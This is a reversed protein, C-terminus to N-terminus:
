CRYWSRFYPDPGYPIFPGRNFVSSGTSRYGVTICPGDASNAVDIRVRDAQGQTGGCNYWTGYITYNQGGINFQGGSGSDGSRGACPDPEAQAPVAIAVASALGLLLASFLVGARRMFM